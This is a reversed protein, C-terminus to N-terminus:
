MLLMLQHEDLHLEKGEKRPCTLLKCELILLITRCRTNPSTYAVCSSLFWRLAWLSSLILFGTVHRKTFVEALTVKSLLSDMEWKLWHSSTNSITSNSEKMYNKRLFSLTHCTVAWHLCKRYLKRCMSARFSPTLFSQCVKIPMINPLGNNAYHNSFFQIICFTVTISLIPCELREAEEQRM